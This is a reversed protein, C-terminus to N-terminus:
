LQGNPLPKVDLKLRVSQIGDPDRVWVFSRHAEHGKPTRIVTCIMDGVIVRQGYLYKVPASINKGTM